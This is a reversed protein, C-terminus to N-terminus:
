ELPEEVQEVAVRNTRSRRKRIQSTGWELAAPSESVIAGRLGGDDDYVGVWITKNDLLVVGFTPHVEVKYMSSSEAELVENMESPYTERLYEVIENRLMLETEISPEVVCPYFLGIFRPPVVPSLCIISDCDKLLRELCVIPAHPDPQDSFLVDADRLVRTELPSEPDLSHLLSKADNLSRYRDELREYERLALEGYLTVACKGNQYSVIGKENLCRIARDLTARSVDSVQVLDRKQTHGDLINRILTARRAIKELLPPDISEAM